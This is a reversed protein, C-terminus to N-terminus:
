DDIEVIENENIKSAKRQFESKITVASQTIVDSDKKIVANLFGKDFDLACRHGKFRLKAMREILRPTVTKGDNELENGVESLDSGLNNRENM